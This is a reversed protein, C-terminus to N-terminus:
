IFGEPSREDVRSVTATYDKRERIRNAFAIPSRPSGRETDRNGGKNGKEMGALTSLPRLGAVGAGGAERGSEFGSSSSLPVWQVRTRSLSEPPPDSGTTSDLPIIEDFKPNRTARLITSFSDTFAIGNDWMSLLGAIVCLLSVFISVGYGILLNKQSYLYLVENTRITINTITSQSTNQLFYPESFFSLTLNDAMSAAVEALPRLGDPVPEDSGYVMPWLEKSNALSTSFVQASSCRQPWSFCMGVMINNLASMISTYALMEGENAPAPHPSLETYPLVRNLVQRNAIEISQEGNLWSFNVTYSANYMACEVVSRLPVQDYAALVLKGAYDTTNVDHWYWKQTLNNYLLYDLDDTLNGSTTFAIYNNRLRSKDWLFENVTRNVYESANQCLIYPGIFDLTYSANTAPAPVQLISGQITSGMVVRTLSGTPGDAGGESMTIYKSRDFDMAPIPQEVITTGNANQVSLTSPTIVTVIPILWSILGLIAVNPGRLWIHLDFFNFISGRIDFMSDLTSLRIPKLRLIWWFHQVCAIGVATTLFTKMLFALGTGIRLAWEQRSQDGVRTGDLSYYYFHHGIALGVGIVFCVIMATPMRWHIGDQKPM